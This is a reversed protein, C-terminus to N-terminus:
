SCYKKIWYFADTLQSEGRDSVVPFEIEVNAFDFAGKVMQNHNFCKLELVLIHKLPVLNIKVKKINESRLSLDFIPEILLNTKTMVVM